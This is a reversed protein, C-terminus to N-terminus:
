YSGGILITKKIGTMEIIRLLILIPIIVSYFWSLCITFNLITSLAMWCAIFAYIYINLTRAKMYRYDFYRLFIVSLMSLLPACIYGFYIMSQGVLPLIQDGRGLYSHYTEVTSKSVDIYHNLVPFNRLADYWISNIGLNSQEKLYIANNVCVPGAFYSDLTTVDFLESIFLIMSGGAYLYETNKYISLVLFFMFAPIIILMTVIKKKEPFMKVACFYIACLTVISYWRSITVQGVFSVFVLTLIGFVLSITLKRGNINKKKLSYFFYIGLWTTLSKWVIGVAGSVGSIDVENILYGKTLLEFGALLHPYKIVMITLLLVGGISILKAYKLEYFEQKKGWVPQEKKKKKYNNGTFLIAVFIGILEIWMIIIAEDIRGYQKAFISLDNNKLLMVIPLLLYRCFMIINLTLIGPAFDVENKDGIFVMGIAYTLPLIWLNYRANHTIAIFLSAIAAIIGIIRFLKLIFTEKKKYRITWKSM